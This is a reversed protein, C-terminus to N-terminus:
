STASATRFIVSHNRSISTSPIGDALCRQQFGEGDRAQRARHRSRQMSTGTSVKESVEVELSPSHVNCCESLVSNGSSEMGGAIRIGRLSALRPFAGPDVALERSALSGAFAASALAASAVAATHETVRNLLMQASASRTARASASSYSWSSAAIRPPAALDRWRKANASSLLMDLGRKAMRCKAPSCTLTTVASSSAGSIDRRPRHAAASSFRRPSRKCRRRSQRTPAKPACSSLAGSSSLLVIGTGFSPNEAFRLFLKSHISSSAFRKM